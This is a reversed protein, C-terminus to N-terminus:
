SPNTPNNTQHIIPLINEGKKELKRIHKYVNQLSIGWKKSIEIPKLGMKLMELIKEEVFTLSNTEKEEKEEIKNKTKELLNLIFADKKKEYKGRILQNSQKAYHYIVRMRGRRFCHRYTKGSHPSTQLIWAKAKTLKQSKIIGQCEVLIEAMARMHSDISPYLPANSILIVQKKRITDLIRGIAINDSSMSRRAPFLVSVEEIIIIEGPKKVKLLRDLLKTLSDVIDEESFSVGNQIRESLREGMRIAFDSKGRGQLGTILIHTHLKKRLRKLIFDDILDCEKLIEM